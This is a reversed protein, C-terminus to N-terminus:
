LCTGSLWVALASYTVALTSLGSLLVTALGLFRHRDEPSDADHPESGDAGYRHARFGSWGVALIVLMAIVTYAAILVAATGLEHSAGAWRGCWLAATVYTATFHVGWVAPSALVTWLRQRSEAVPSPM